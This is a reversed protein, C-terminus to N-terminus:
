KEFTKVNVQTQATNSLLDQSSMQYKTQLLRCLIQQMASSVISISAVVLGMMNSRLGIDTITRCLDVHADYILMSAALSSTDRHVITDLKQM